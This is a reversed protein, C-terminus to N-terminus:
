PYRPNDKQRMLQDSHALSPSRATNRGDVYSFGHIGNTGAEWLLRYDRSQGSIQILQRLVPGAAPMVLIARDLVDFEKVLCVEWATGDSDFPVIFMGAAKALLARVHEKRDDAPALPVTIYQSVSTRAPGSSYLALYSERSM